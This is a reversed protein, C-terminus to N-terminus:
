WREKELFQLVARGVIERHDGESRDILWRLSFCIGSAHVHQLIRPQSDILHGAHMASEVIGRGVRHPQVAIKAFETLIKEGPPTASYSRTTSQSGDFEADLM